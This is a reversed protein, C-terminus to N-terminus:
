RELWDDHQGLARAILRWRTAMTADIHGNGVKVRCGGRELQPDISIVCENLEHNLYQRV